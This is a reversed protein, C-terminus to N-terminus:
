RLQLLVRRQLAHREDGHLGRSSRRRAAHGVASGDRWYAQSPRTYLSYVKNGGVNLSEAAANAATMGQRGGVTSTPTQAEIFNGHGSQDYVRWITCTSGSCFSEQQASDAFGGPSKVPIDRTM